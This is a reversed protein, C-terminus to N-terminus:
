TVSGDIAIVRCRPVPLDEFGDVPAVRGAHM